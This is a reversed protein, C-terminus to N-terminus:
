RGSARRRVDLVARLASRRNGGLKSADRRNEVGARFRRFSGLRGLRRPPLALLPAAADDRDDDHQEHQRRRDRRPPHAAHDDFGARNRRELLVAIDHGALRGTLRDDDIGAVFDLHQEIDDRLLRQVHPADQQRVRVDIM